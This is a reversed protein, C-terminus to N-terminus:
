VPRISPCHEDVAPPSPAPQDLSMFEDVDVLLEQSRIAQDWTLMRGSRMALRGMIATLTSKAGNDCENPIEGRRLAAVLNNQERQHGGAGGRGYSWVLERRTDYIKAGSVDAQGHTGQVHEAVCNWCDRARRCQAYLKAGDAYTYEVFHRDGMGSAGHSRSDARDGMGQCEVPYAQKLWNIVDLQHVSREVFPGGGLWGFSGWQRIQYELESQHSPRSRLPIAATNFYTRALQISGISGDHLRGITERYRPEHHRKLGVGVALGSSRAVDNAALVRRVGPGDVALPPELFVHKGAEVAAEFHQPRFVPPTALIVLDVDTELLQRFGALGTFRQDRPVEVHQAHQGKLARYAAQIRDGLVDCLASLVVGGNPQIDAQQMTSLAEVAAKTGRRGCGILGVRITDSGFAHAARVVSLPGGVAGGAFLLSSRKIFARRSSTVAEASRVNQGMDLGAAVSM